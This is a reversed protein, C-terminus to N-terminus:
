EEQLGLAKELILILEELKHFSQYIHGSHTPRAHAIDNRLDCIQKIDKNSFHEKIISKSYKILVTGKQRLTAYHIMDLDQSSDKQKRHRKRIEEVPSIENGNDGILPLWDESEETISLIYTSM